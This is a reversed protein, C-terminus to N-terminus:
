MDVPCKSRLKDIEDNIEGLVMGVEYAPDSHKLACQLIRLIHQIIELRELETVM